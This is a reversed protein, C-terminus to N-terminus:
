EIDREDVSFMLEYISTDIWKCDDHIENVEIEPPLMQAVEEDFRMNLYDVADDRDSFVKMDLEPADEGSFYSKMETYVYVKMM